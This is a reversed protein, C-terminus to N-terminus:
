VADPRMQLSASSHGTNRQEPPFNINSRSITIYIHEFKCGSRTSFHVFLHARSLGFQNHTHTIHFIAGLLHVPICFSDRLGGDHMTCIHLLCLNHPTHGCVANPAGTKADTHIQHMSRSLSICCLAPSFLGNVM